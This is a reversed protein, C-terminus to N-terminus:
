TRRSWSGVTLFSSGTSSAREKRSGMGGEVVGGPVGGNRRAGSGSGSCCGDGPGLRM